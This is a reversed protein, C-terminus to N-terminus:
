LAATSKATAAKAAAPTEAASFEGTGLCCDTSEGDCARAGSGSSEVLLESFSPGWLPVRPTPKSMDGPFVCM